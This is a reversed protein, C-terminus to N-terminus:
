DVSLSAMLETALPDKMVDELLVPTGDPASLPVRWNPYENSTGPQNQTRRDGIADVLALNLLKAPTRTLFRHLAILENRQEVDADPDPEASLLGDARLRDLWATREDEAVQLEEAVPRTM